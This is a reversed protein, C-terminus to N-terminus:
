SLVLSDEGFEEIFAPQNFLASDQEATLGGLTVNVLNGTQPDDFEITQQGDQQDEDPLVTVGPESLDAVDLVDGSDFGNITVGYNGTAFDFTLDGTTADFTEGENESGIDVPGQTAGLIDEASLEGQLGEFEIAFEPGSLTGDELTLNDGFTLDENIASLDLQDEGASFGFITDPADPSSDAADSLVFTDEGADGTLEDAGAGGNLTDNGDSGTLVDNGADGQISDDGIGGVLNADDGAGGQLTDNGAGGVLFDNAGGGSIQDNGSAGSLNDTGAAGVINDPGSLDSGAVDPFESSVIGSDIQVGDDSTVTVDVGGANNAEVEFNEPQPDTSTDNIVVEETAEIVEAGAEKLVAEGSHNIDGSVPLGNESSVVLPDEDDSNISFGFDLGSAPEDPTNNAALELGLTELASSALSVSTTGGSVVSNEGDSTLEADIQVDGIDTGALSDDGLASAFEPSLLLDIDSLTATNNSEDVDVSGAATADALISVESNAGPLNLPSANELFVGSPGEEFNGGSRTEDFGIIPDEIVAQAGDVFSFNATFTENGETTEDAVVPLELTGQNNNIEIAGSLPADFDAANIGDGSLGYNVTAGDDFNSTNVTITTSNGEEVPDPDANLEDFAPQSTGGGGITVAEGSVTEGPATPVTANLTDTVFTNFDVDPEDIGATANGGPEYGFTDAGNVNIIAGNNLTLQLANAAVTSSAIELGEVLQISNTGQTDSITVEKDSDTLLAGSIIYTDDGVGTGVFSPSGNQLLSVFDENM